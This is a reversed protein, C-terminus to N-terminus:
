YDAAEGDDVGLAEGTVGVAVDEEVGDCVGQEARNRGAVDAGKEGGAIRAPFAGGGAEEQAGREFFDLGGAVLDDVDVGAEDHHARLDDGDGAFEALADGLQEADLGALDADLGLCGLAEVLIADGDSVGGYQEFGDFGIGAELGHGCGGVDVFVKFRQFTECDAHVVGGCEAALHGGEVGVSRVQRKSRRYDVM